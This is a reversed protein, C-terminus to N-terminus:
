RSNQSDQTLGATSRGLQAEILAHKAELAAQWSTVHFKKVDTM